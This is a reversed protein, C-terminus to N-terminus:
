CTCRATSTGSRSTTSATERATGWGTSPGPGTPRPTTWLTAGNAGSAVRCFSSTNFGIAIDQVGDGNVDELAAVRQQLGHPVTWVAAGSRGNICHLNTAWQAAVIEKVGDGTIDNIFILNWISDDMLHQWLFAGTAGSLAIVRPTVDADGLAAVVDRVGDGNIDQCSLVDMFADGGYYPWILAGTAGNVCHVRDNFSGSCFVVEPVGDGTLDSGLSDMAYIWGAYSTGYNAYTDFGWFTAGTRGNLAYATRGGWATGLLVEPFGDGNLDPGTRLCNDGM